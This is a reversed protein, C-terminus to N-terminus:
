STREAMRAEITRYFGHADSQIREAYGKGQLDQMCSVIRQALSKSNVSLFPKLIFDPVLRRPVSFENKGSMIISCRGDGEPVVLTTALDVRLESANQTDTPVEMDCYRGSSLEEVPPTWEVILIGGSTDIADVFARHVLTKLHKPLIPVKAKILTMLGPVESSWSCSCKKVFPLWNHALDAERFISLAQTLTGPLVLKTLTSLTSPGSWAYWFSMQWNTGSSELPGTWSAGNVPTPPISPRVMPSTAAPTVRRLWDIQIPRKRFADPEMSGNELTLSIARTIHFRKVLGIVEKEEPSSELERSLECPPQGVAESCENRVNEITCSLDRHSTGRWSNRQLRWCLVITAMILYGAIAPAELLVAATTLAAGTAGAAISSSSATSVISPERKVQDDDLDRNKNGSCSSRKKFGDSDMTAPSIARLRQAENQQEARTRIACRREHRRRKIGFGNFNCVIAKSEGCIRCQAARRDSNGLTPVESEGTDRGSSVRM